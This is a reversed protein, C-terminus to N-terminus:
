MELEGWFWWSTNLAAVFTCVKWHFLLCHDTREYFMSFFLSCLQECLLKSNLGKPVEAMAQIIICALVGLHSLSRANVDVKWSLNEFHEQIAKSQVERGGGLESLTRGVLFILSVCCEEGRTQLVFLRCHLYVRKNKSGFSHRVSVDLQLLLIAFLDSKACFSSSSRRSRLSRIAADWLEFREFGFAIPIYLTQM